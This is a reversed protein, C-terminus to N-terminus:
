NIIYIRRIVKIYQNIHIFINKLVLFLLFNLWYNSISFVTSFQKTFKNKHINQMHINM